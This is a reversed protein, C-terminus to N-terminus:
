IRTYIYIYKDMALLSINGIYIDHRLIITDRFGQTHIYLMFAIFTPIPSYLFPMYVFPTTAGFSQKSSPHNGTLRRYTRLCYTVFFPDRAIENGRLINDDFFFFTGFTRYPLTALICIRVDSLSPRNIFRNFFLIQVAMIPIYLYLIM